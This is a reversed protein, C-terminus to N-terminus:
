GIGGGERYLAGAALFNVTGGMAKETRFVAFTGGHGVHELAHGNHTHNLDRRVRVSSPGVKIM